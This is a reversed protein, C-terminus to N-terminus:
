RKPRKALTPVALGGGDSKQADKVTAKMLRERSAHDQTLLASTLAQDV